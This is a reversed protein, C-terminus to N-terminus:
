TEGTIWESYILGFNDILMQRSVPLADETLIRAAYVTEESRSLMFRGGVSAREERKEGTLTYVALFDKDRAGNESVTSFIIMREGSAGEERSLTIKGKWSDPLVLYWSDTYNSYTTCVLRRSGGPYYSYWDITYYTTGETTPPLPVPQPVDIVGDSDIDRCYLAYSLRLTGESVGSNEDLTVNALKGNQWALIDTVIGTGNMTSEVLIASRGGLLQTSRVRM